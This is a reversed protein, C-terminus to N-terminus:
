KKVIMYDPNGKNARYEASDITELTSVEVFDDDNYTDAAAPAASAAPAGITETFVPKARTPETLSEEDVDAEKSEVKEVAAHNQIPVRKAEGISQTVDLDEKTEPKAVSKAVPMAMPADAKAAVAAAAASESSQKLSNNRSKNRKFLSLSGSRSRASNKRSLSGSEAPAPSEKKPYLDKLPTNMRELQDPTMHALAEDVMSRRRTPTSPYQVASSSPEKEEPIPEVSKSVADGGNGLASAATSAANTTAGVASGAAVAAAAGVAGVAGLATGVGFSSSKKAAEAEEKEYKEREERLEKLKKARAIEEEHLAIAEEEAKKKKQAAAAAEEKEKAIRAEEDAKEQAIRAEEDAKEQEVRKREEEAEIRLREQKQAEELRMQKLEAEWNAKAETAATRKSELAQKGATSLDNIKTGHAAVRSNMLGVQSALIAVNSALLAHKANIIGYSRDSEKRQKTATRIAEKKETKTSILAEVEKIRAELAAKKEAVENELDDAKSKLSQGETELKEALETEEVQKAKTSELEETKSEKLQTVNAVLNDKDTVHAEAADTEAKEADAADTEVGETERKVYDESEQKATADKEELAAIADDHTKQVTATEADVCSGYAALQSAVVGEDRTKIGEEVKAAAEADRKLNAAVKEDIQGMVPELKKKALEYIQDETLILGAGLDIRRGANVVKNKNLVQSAIKLNEKYKGVLKPKSRINEPIELAPAVLPGVQLEELDKSSDVVPAEVDDTAPAPEESSKPVTEDEKDELPQDSALPEEDVEENDDEEQLITEDAEDEEEADAALPEEEANEANEAVAANPEEAEVEQTKEVLPEEEAEEANEADAALTEGANEVNEADKADEADEANPANEKEAKEKRLAEAKAIDEHVQAALTVPVQSGQSGKAGPAAFKAAIPTSPVKFSKSLRAQTKKFFGSSKETAPATATAMSLLFAVELKSFQNETAVKEKDRAVFTKNHYCFSGVSGVFTM